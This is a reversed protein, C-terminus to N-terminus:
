LLGRTNSQVKEFPEMVYFLGEGFSYLWVRLHGSIIGAEPINMGKHLGEWASIPDDTYGISHQRFSRRGLDYSVSPSGGQQFISSLKSCPFGAAVISPCELLGLFGM